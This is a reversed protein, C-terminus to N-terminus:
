LPSPMVFTASQDASGCTVSVLGDKLGLPSQVCLGDPYGCVMAAGRVLDEKSRGPYAKQAFFSSASGGAACKVTDVTPKEAAQADGEVHDLGLADALADVVGGDEAAGSGANNTSACAAAVVMSGVLVAGVMRWRM